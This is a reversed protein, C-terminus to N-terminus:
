RRKSSPLRIFARLGISTDTIYDLTSIASSSIKIMHISTTNINSVVIKVLTDTVTTDIVTDTLADLIEEIPTNFLSDINSVLMKYIAVDTTDYEQLKSFIIELTDNPISIFETDPQWFHQSEPINFDTTDFYDVNGEDLLGLRYSVGIGSELLASTDTFTMLSEIPTVYAISDFDTDIKREVIVGDGAPTRLVWTWSLNVFTKETDGASSEMKVMEATHKLVCDLNIEIGTECSLFILIVLFGIMKKM